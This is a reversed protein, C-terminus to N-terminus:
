PQQAGSETDSSSPLHRGPRHPGGVGTFVVVIVLLVLAIVIMGSVKVWRPIGPYSAPDAM